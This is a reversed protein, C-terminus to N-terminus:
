ASSPAGPERARTRHEGTNATFTPTILVIKSFPDIVVQVANFATPTSAAAVDCPVIRWVQRSPLPIVQTSVAPM